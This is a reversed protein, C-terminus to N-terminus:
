SSYLSDYLTDASNCLQNTAITKEDIDNNISEINDIKWTTEEDERDIVAESLLDFAETSMRSWENILKISETESTADWADLLVDFGNEQQQTYSIRKNLHNMSIHTQAEKVASGMEVVRQKAANVSDKIDEKTGSLTLTQYNQMASGLRKDADVYDFMAEQYNIFSKQNSLITAYLDLIDIKDGYCQQTKEFWEKEDDEYQVKLEEALQIVENAYSKSENIKIEADSIALLATPATTEKDMALDYKLEFLEFSTEYDDKIDSFSDIDEQATKTCGVILLSFVIMLAIKRLM